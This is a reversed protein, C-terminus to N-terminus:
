LATVGEIPADHDIEVDATLERARELLSAPFPTIVDPRGVMDAALFELFGGLVPDTAEEVASANVLRVEDGQIIYGLRDGPGAGLAARVGSPVTTQSRETLKSTLMGSMPVELRPYHM